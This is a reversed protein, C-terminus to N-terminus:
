QEGAAAQDGKNLIFYFCDMCGRGFCSATDRGETWVGGGMLPPPIQQLKRFWTNIAVPIQAVFESLWAAVQRTCLWPLPLSFCLFIMGFLLLDISSCIAAMSCEPCPKDHGTHPEMYGWLSWQGEEYGWMKSYGGVRHGFYHGCM